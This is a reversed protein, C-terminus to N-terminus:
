TENKGCGEAPKPTQSLEEWTFSLTGSELCAGPLFLLFSFPRLPCLDRSSHAWSTGPATALSLLVGVVLHHLRAKLWFLGPRDLSASISVGGQGLRRLMPPFTFCSFYRCLIYAVTCSSDTGQSGRPGPEACPQSLWPGPQLQGPAPSTLRQSSAPSVELDM